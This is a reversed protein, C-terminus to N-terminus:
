QEAGHNVSITTVTPRDTWVKTSSSRDTTEPIDTFAFGSPITMAACDAAGGASDAFMKGTGLAKVVYGKSSNDADTMMTGSKPNVMRLWGNDSRREPFGWLQGSGEYQLFFTKGNYKAPYDTRAVYDYCAAGCSTNYVNGTKKREKSTFSFQAGSTFDTSNQDDATAFTYSVKIPPDINYVTNNDYTPYYYKDWRNIGTRWQYVGSACNWINNTASPDETAACTGGIDSNVIYRGGGVHYRYGDTADAQTMPASLDSKYPIVPEAGKYMTLPTSADNIGKFVYDACGNNDPGDASGGFPTRCFGEYTPPSAEFESKKPRGTPCWGVCTMAAIGAAETSSAGIETEKFMLATTAGTNIVVQARAIENYLWDGAGIASGSKWHGVPFQFAACGGSQQTNFLGAGCGADYFVDAEGTGTWIKFREGSVLTVSSKEVKSLRGSAALLKMSADTDRHTITIPSGPQPFHADNGELWAGWHGVDGRYTTSGNVYTFGFGGTIAVEAGTVNDYLGYEYTNSWKKSKDYCADKIQVQSANYTIRRYKTSTTVGKYFTKGGQEQDMASSIFAQTTHAPAFSVAKTGSAFVNSPSNEANRIITDANGDGDVDSVSVDAYGSDMTAQDVGTSNGPSQYWRFDLLLGFKSASSENLATSVIYTEGSASSFYADILQDTASGARTSVMTVDALSKAGAEESPMLDCKIEDILARWTANPRTDGNSNKIICVFANVMKLGQSARDQVWTGSKANSYDTGVSNYAAYGIKGFSFFAVLVLFMRFKMIKNETNDYIHM